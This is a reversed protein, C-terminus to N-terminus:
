QHAPAPAPTPSPATPKPLTVGMSQAIRREVEAYRAAQDKWAPDMQLTIDLEQAELWKPGGVAHLRLLLKRDKMAAAAAAREDEDAEQDAPSPAPAAAPAPSAAPAATAAARAKRVVQAAKPNFFELDELEKDDIAQAAQLAEGDIGPATPSPGKAKLQQLEAEAAEARGKWQRKAERETTLVTYPLVGAGSKTAIGTVHQEDAGPTAGEAAPAPAPAAAAAPAGAESGGGGEPPGDQGAKAMLRAFDEPTTANLLEDQTITNDSTESM